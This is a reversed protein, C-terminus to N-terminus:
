LPDVADRKLVKLAQTMMVVWWLGFVVLGLWFTFVGDYAFPGEDFCLILVGPAYALACWLNFYGVWRPFVPRARRDAFTAVAVATAQAMLPTIFGVFVLWALDNLSEILEPARTGAGTAAAGVFFSPFVIALTIMVGAVLSTYAMPAPGGGEAAKVQHFLVASFPFAFAAGFIMVAAGARIWPGEEVYMRAVEAATMTPSPPPLFGALVVFGLLVVALFAFGSYVSLRM